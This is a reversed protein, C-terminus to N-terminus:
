FGRATADDLEADYTRYDGSNDVDFYQHAEYVINGSPGLVIVALDWGKSAAYEVCAKGIREAAAVSIENPNLTKAAAEASILVDADAAPASASAGALMMSALMIQSAALRM